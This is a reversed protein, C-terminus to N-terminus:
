AENKLFRSAYCRYLVSEKDMAKISEIFDSRKKKAGEKDYMSPFAKNGLWEEPLGFDYFRMYEDEVILCWGDPEGPGNGSIGYTFKILWQWVLGCDPAHGQGPVDM